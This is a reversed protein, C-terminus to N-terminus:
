GRFAGSVGYCQVNLNLFTFKPTCLCESLILQGNEGQIKVHDRQPYRHSLKRKYFCWNYQILAWRLLRMKFKTIEKFFKDGFVAVYM